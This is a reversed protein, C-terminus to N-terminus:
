YVRHRLLRIISRTASSCMGTRTGIAYNWGAPRSITRSNIGAWGIEGSLRGYEIKPCRNMVVKLGAKKARKAAKKNIVTLQMWVVKAGIKIAQKTIDFAADSGRFIDVMDIQERYEPLVLPVPISCLYVKYHFLRPYKNVDTWILYNQIQNFLNVCNNLPFSSRGKILLIM